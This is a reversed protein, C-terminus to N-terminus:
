TQARPDESWRVACVVQPGDFGKLDVTRAEGFVVSGSPEVLSKVLSSVLIEGGSAASGIRAAYAVDRGYFDDAHRVPEGTHLGMRVKLRDDLGDLDRQIAVACEVARRASPYALMFGDGQSKVVEGNAEQTRARVIENHKILLPLFADDGMAENTATSAELDTFVITVTGEPSVASGVGPREREVLEAVEDLSTTIEVGMSETNSVPNSAHFHVISWSREERTLVFTLRWPISTGDSLEGSLTCVAWGLEDSEYAHINLGVPAFLAERGLTENTEVLEELQKTIIARAEVGGEWYEGPDSGVFVAADSRSLTEVLSADGRLYDYIWGRVLDRIERSPKM